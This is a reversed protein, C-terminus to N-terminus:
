VVEINEFDRLSMLGIYAEEKTMEKVAVKHTIEYSENKYAEKFYERTAAGDDDNRTSYYKLTQIITYVVLGILSLLFFIIGLILDM